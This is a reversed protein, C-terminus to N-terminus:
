YPLWNKFIFLDNKMANCQKVFVTPTYSLMFVPFFKMNSKKVELTVHVFILHYWLGWWKFCWLWDELYFDLRHSQKLGPHVRAETWFTYGRNSESFMLLWQLTLSVLSIQLVVLSVAPQRVWSTQLFVCAATRKQRLCVLRRIERSWKIGNVDQSCWFLSVHSYVHAINLFWCSPWCACM